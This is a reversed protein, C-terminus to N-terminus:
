GMLISSLWQQRKIALLEYHKLKDKPHTLPKVGSILGGVTGIIPGAIASIPNSSGM